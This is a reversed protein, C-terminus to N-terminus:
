DPKKPGMRFPPRQYRRRHWNVARLVHPRSILWRESQYKGPFDLLMIGILMTLVGQGPLVLMAIGTALLLLGLLNKLLLALARLLPHYHKWPAAHRQSSHFYDEPLRVIAWPVFILSGVFLLVSLAVWLRPSMFLPLEFPM